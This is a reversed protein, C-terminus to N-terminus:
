GSRTSVDACETAQTLPSELPPFLEPAVLLDAVTTRSFFLELSTALASWRRHAPCPDADGCTARGLLCRRAVRATFPDVIDVLAIEAAPRGLKFGGHPGRISALVGSRALQHMTKSLYNRPTALRAAVDDVRMPAGGGHQAICVVAHLATQATGTLWM